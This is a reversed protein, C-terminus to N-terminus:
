VMGTHNVPHSKVPAFNVGLSTCARLYRKECYGTQEPLHKTVWEYFVMSSMRKPRDGNRVSELMASFADYNKQLLETWDLQNAAWKRVFHEQKALLRLLGSPVSHITMASTSTSFKEPRWTLAEVKSWHMQMLIKRLRTLGLNRTAKIRHTWVKDDKDMYKAIYLGAKEPCHVRVVRQKKPDYPLAFRHKSWMDGEHRFYKARGIGPLAWPWYTSMPRCWDRTRHQPNRIGRNPCQKWSDPIDRMWILLHMHHHHRSKGHEIVGVHHVFDACSAGNQIAKPQGCARSAVRALRRIYKRFERGEAWMTQSDAVQKPDVTLTVFFGYWGELSKELAEQGIRWIWNSRIQQRGATALMDQFEQTEFTDLHDSRFLGLAEKRHALSQADRLGCARFTPPYILISRALYDACEALAKERVGSPVGAKRMLHLNTKCESLFRQTKLATTRTM